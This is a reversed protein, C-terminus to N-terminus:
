YFSNGSPSGHSTNIVSLLLLNRMLVVNYNITILRTTAQPFSVHLLRRPLATIYSISVLGTSAQPMFIYKM